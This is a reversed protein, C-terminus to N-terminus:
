QTLMIGCRITSNSGLKPVRYLQNEIGSAELINNSLVYECHEFCSKKAGVECYPWLWDSYFYDEQCIGGCCWLVCWPTGSDADISIGGKM